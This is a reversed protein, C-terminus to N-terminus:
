ENKVIKAESQLSSQELRRKEAILSQFFPGTDFTTFIVDKIMDLRSPIIYQDNQGTNNPNISIPHDEKM